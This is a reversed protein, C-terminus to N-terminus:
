GILCIFFDSIKRKTMKVSTAQEFFLMSMSCSKHLSAVVIGCIVKKFNDLLNIELFSINPPFNLISLMDIVKLYQGAKLIFSTGSRPAIIKYTQM